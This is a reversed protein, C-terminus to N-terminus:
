VAKGFPTIHGHMEHKFSEPLKDLDPDIWVASAEMAADNKGRRLYAYGGAGWDQGWSNRIIWYKLPEQEEQKEEGWGVLVVAHTTYYWTRVAPNDSFTEKAMAENRFKTIPEGYNGSWFDTVADTNVSIAVPGNEYVEQMLLEESAGHSFGGVYGYDRAFFRTTANASKWDCADVGNRAAPSEGPALVPVGFDALFRAAQLNWGGSCGEGYPNCQFVTPWSVHVPFLVGYKKWLGIRLRAQFTTATTFAWCSGCAGQDFEDGLGDKSEPMLDLQDRWDFHTPLEKSNRAGRLLKAPSAAQSPVGAQRVTGVSQPKAAVPSREQLKKATAMQKPAHAQGPHDPPGEGARWKRFEGKRGAGSFSVPAKARDGVASGTACAFGDKLRAWGVATEDCHCAYVDGMAPVVPDGGDRRGQYEGISTWVDGNEAENLKVGPLLSFLFTFMLSKDGIRVEFGTDFVMTWNGKEGTDLDEAIMHQSRPAPWSAAREVDQTLRVRLKQAVEGLNATRNARVMATVSNPVSHGCTNVMPSKAGISFEWERATDRLLCHVPLDAFAVWALLLLRNVPMGDRSDGRCGPHPGAAERAAQAL